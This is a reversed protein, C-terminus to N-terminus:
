TSHPNYIKPLICFVATQWAPTVQFPPKILLGTLYKTIANMKKAPHLFGNAGASSVVEEEDPEAM